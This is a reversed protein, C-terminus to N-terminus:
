KLTIFALIFANDDQMQSIQDYYPTQKLREMFNPDNKKLYEVKESDILGIITNEDKIGIFPNNWSLMQFAVHNAELVEKTYVTQTNEDYILFKLRSKENYPLFLFQKLKIFGNKAYSVSSLNRGIFDMKKSASVKYESPIEQGEFKLIYKPFFQKSSYQFITDSLASAYLFGDNTLSIGGSFSISLYDKYDFPFYNEQINYNKDLMLLNHNNKEDGNYNLYVILEENHLVLFDYIFLPIDKEELFRGDLAYKIMKRKEMSFLLLEEKEKNMTIGYISTYEGPGEGINGIKYLFSGLTDLVNISKMKPDIIFLKHHYYFIKDIHAILHSTDIKIPLLNISQIPPILAEDEKKLSTLDIIHTKEKENNNEVTKQNECSFFIIFILFLFYYKLEM